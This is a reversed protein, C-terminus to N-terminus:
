LFQDRLNQQEGDKIIIEMGYNIQNSCDVSREVFKISADFDAVIEKRDEIKDAAEVNFIDSHLDLDSNELNLDIKESFVIQGDDNKTILEFGLPCFSNRLNTGQYEPIGTDPEKEDCPLLKPPEPNSLSACEVDSFVLVESRIRINKEEISSENAMRLAILESFSFFEKDNNKLSTTTSSDCAYFFISIFLVVTTKM